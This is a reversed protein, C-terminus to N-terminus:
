YIYIYIDIFSDIFLSHMRIGEDENAGAGIFNSFTHIFSHVFSHIFSYVHMCANIYTNILEDIFSHCIM